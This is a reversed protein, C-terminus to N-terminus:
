GSVESQRFACGNSPRPARPEEAFEHVLHYVDHWTTARPMAIHSNTSNAFCIVPLGSARLAVINDPSDEVYVDAGVQAKEKMFCLDFYPIGQNDLWGVTQGVAAKHFYFVFLRNTIIRIRAGEDSLLRLYKRAGPIM